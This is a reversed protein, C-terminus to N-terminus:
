DRFVLPSAKKLVSDIFGPTLAHLGIALREGAGLVHERRRDAIANVTERAVREASMGFYNEPNLAFAAKNSSNNVIETKTSTPCVLLVHIGYKALEIRLSESLGNVAHKSGSYNGIGPQGMKGAVSSVNVIMGSHHAMMDPLAARICNVTGWYNVDMVRKMGALDDKYFYSYTAIGANNILIDIQGFRALAKDILTMAQKEESVDTAVALTQIGHQQELERGLNQILDLRRAALVLNCGAQALEVALAKGIGSSAGTVIVTKGRLAAKRAPRQKLQWLKFGAQGAVVGAGALLLGQKLHKPKFGKFLKTLAQRRPSKSSPM